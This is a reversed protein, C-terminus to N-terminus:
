ENIGGRMENFITNDIKINDDPLSLMEYNWILYEGLGGNVFTDYSSLATLYRSDEILCFSLDLYNTFMEIKDNDNFGKQKTVFTRNEFSTFKSSKWKFELTENGKLTMPFSIEKINKGNIKLEGFKLIEDVQSNNTVNLYVNKLVKYKLNISGDSENISGERTLYKLQEKQTINTIRQKLTVKGIDCSERRGNEDIIDVKTIIIDKFKIEDNFTNNSKLKYKDLDLNVIYGKFGNKEFVRNMEWTVAQDSIEPLIIQVDTPEIRSLFQLNFKITNDSIIESKIFVFNNKDTKVKYYIANIIVGIFVLITVGVIIGKRHRM